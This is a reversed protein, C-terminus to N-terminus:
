CKKMTAAFMVCSLAIVVSDSKGKGLGITVNRKENYTVNNYM